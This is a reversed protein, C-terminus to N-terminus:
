GEKAPIFTFNDILRTQGFYVAVAILVPGTIQEVPQLALSDVVSIYDPRALPEAALSAQIAAQIVSASREGAALQERALGLSRPVVLAATREEPSLYINRSSLALGDAERVIPCGVIEIPFNLDRTMRRIVALQQADKEGFFAMNPQCINFLKAVVTCVGQFHGPRSAGCLNDGLQRIDIYALNESPYMEAVEPVFVLDAGAQQCLSLDSDLDRPYRAYDENPGFQIPNVFISVIVQDCTRRAMEILSRHGAHLYGMTPVLGIKQDRRKYERTILQIDSITHKIKM